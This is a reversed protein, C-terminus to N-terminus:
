FCRGNDINTAVPMKIYNRAPQERSARNPSSSVSKTSPSYKEPSYDKKHPSPGQSTKVRTKDKNVKNQKSAVLAKLLKLELNAQSTDTNCEDMDTVDSEEQTFNEYGRTTPSAPRKQIHAQPNSESPIPKLDQTVSLTSGHSLMSKTSETSVTVDNKNINVSKATQPINFKAALRKNANIAPKAPRNDYQTYKTDQETKLINVKSNDINRPKGKEM